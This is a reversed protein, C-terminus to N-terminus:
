AAPRTLAGGCIPCGKFTAFLALEDDTGTTHCHPCLENHTIEESCSVCHRALVGDYDAPQEIGCHACALFTKTATVERTFYRPKM